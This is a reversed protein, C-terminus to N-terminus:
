TKNAKIKLEIRIVPITKPRFIDMKPSISATGICKGDQNMEYGLGCQTSWGLFETTLNEGRIVGILDLIFLHYPFSYNEDFNVGFDDGFSKM